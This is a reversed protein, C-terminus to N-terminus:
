GDSPGDRPDMWWGDAWFGRKHSKHASFLDAGSLPLFASEDGGRLGYDVNATYLSERFIGDLAPNDPRNDSWVPHAVGAYAVIGEYDGYSGFAQPNAASEDSQAKTIRRNPGFHIGGATPTGVALFVDAKEHNVPDRRTDYWSLVVEGNARDVSLSPFFQGNGAGDDNVRTRPSWTQGHNDSFQLYIDTDFPRNVPDPRDAYALYVRGRLPGDSRDTDLVEQAAVAGGLATVALTPLSSGLVVPGTQVTTAQIPTEITRGGDTSRAVFLNMGGDPSFPAGVGLYLTGDPGVTQINMPYNPTSFVVLPDSWTQGGDTSRSLMLDLILEGNVISVNNWTVYLTDRFPSTPSQDVAIKPHDFFLDPNTNNVAPATFQTFTAGGDTSKAVIIVEQPFGTLNALEHAAYVNGRSDFAVTPDGSFEYTIGQFSLPLPSSAGWTRGGDQSYYASDHTFLDNLPDGTIAVAVLNDPRTPNLDINTEVGITQGNTININASPVSRDELREVQLRWRPPRRRSPHNRPRFFTTLNM